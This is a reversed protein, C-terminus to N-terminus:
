EENVVNRAWFDSKLMILGIMVKLIDVFQVCFYVQTITLETFRTLCFALPVAIVWTYVADFLFTIVTRGGSRITFYTVHAFSHIPLSCGAIILLQRTLDRVEESVNYLRPVLPAALVMSVGIIVHIVETLFILKRDVDRAEEMKGAGLRQGVMIAVASGMGMMIVSFLNWATGNINLAAVANLGRSSYFQTIFTMGLSWLIENILLPTATRLIKMALSGPVYLSKYSGAFFPYKDTHRHAHSAVILLEVYRSVVTAIAAGQVGMAPAGLHGFILVWNGFLNTLIACIGAFMPARTEGAERLTGAYVQVLAFPPLGWLMINLYDCGGRQTLALDGGNSEGKLFAAIFSEGFFLYVLIAAASILVGFYMKCRFTYRMGDTDGKGFFQAGYIGAGSMGGFVALIFVLMVQNAISAASIAETGLSGVMINDLLSVFSTIFQQIVIPILLTVVSKYFAKNGIFHSFM